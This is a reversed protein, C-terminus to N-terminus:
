RELRPFSARRHLPRSSVRRLSPLPLLSFYRSRSFTRPHATSRRSARRALTPSHKCEQPQSSPTDRPALPPPTSGLLAPPALHSGHLQRRRHSSSADSGTTSPLPLFTSHLPLIIAAAATTHPSSSSTAPIAIAKAPDSRVKTAGEEEAEPSAGLAAFRRLSM